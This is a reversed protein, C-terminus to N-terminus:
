WEVGQVATPHFPGIRLAREEDHAQLGFVESRFFPQERCPAGLEEAFSNFLRRSADNPATVSAELYRAQRCFPRTLVESLLRKGLGQGRAAENVAVQWVFFVNRDAPQLYGSLFGVAEGAQEAVVCTDAFHKCLLLYCYTSNVDLPECSAILEQIEAGDDLQPPRFVTESFDLENALPSELACSEMADIQEEIVNKCALSAACRSIGNSSETLDSSFHNAAPSLGVLDAISVAQAQAPNFRYSEPECREENLRWCKALPFEM